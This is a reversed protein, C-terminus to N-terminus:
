VSLKSINEIFVDCFYTAAVSTYFWAPSLSGAILFNAAFGPLCFVGTLFKLKRTNQIM